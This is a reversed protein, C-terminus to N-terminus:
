ERRGATVPVAETPALLAAVTVRVTELAAVAECVTELAAVTECVKELVVLLPFLAQRGQLSLPQWLNLSKSFAHVEMPAVKESIVEEVGLEIQQALAFCGKLNEQVSPVLVEQEEM